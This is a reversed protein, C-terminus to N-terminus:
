RARTEDALFHASDLERGAARGTASAVFSVPTEDSM